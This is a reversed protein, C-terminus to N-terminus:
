IRKAEILKAGNIAIEGRKARNSAEIAREMRSAFDEGNIQATMALRPREYEIAIQAARMRVPLPVKENQYVSRLFALADEQEAIVEQEEKM